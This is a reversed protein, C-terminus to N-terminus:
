KQYVQLLKRTAANFRNVQSRNLGDKAKEIQNKLTEAQSLVKNFEKPNADKVTADKTNIAHYITLCREVAKEYDKLKKELDAGKIQSENLTVKANKKNTNVKLSSQASANFAFGVLLLAMMAFTFIKKM